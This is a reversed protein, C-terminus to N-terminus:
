EHSLGNKFEEFPFDFYSKVDPHLCIFAYLQKKMTDDFTDFNILFGPMYTVNNTEFMAALINRNWKKSEEPTM